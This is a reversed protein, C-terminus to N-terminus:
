RVVITGSMGSHLTCQYPFSGATNMRQTATGGPNLNPINVGGGSANHVAAGNNTFRVEGGVAVEVSAPNFSNDVMSVDASQPAPGTPPSRTLVVVGAVAQQGAVVTVAVVGSGAGLQYGSPPTVAITYAGATVSGFSYSGDSGTVTNRTTQGTARLAVSANPVAAGTNDNVNGRVSGTVGVQTPGGDSGGGCASSALIAVAAAMARLTM